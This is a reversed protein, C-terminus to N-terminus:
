SCSNVTINGTNSIDQNVRERVNYANEYRIRRDGFIWDAFVPQYDYTVEVFMVASGPIAAIMRDNSGMGDRMSADERGKGELGYAPSVDLEGWCRQWNIMQGSRADNKQNDQLSSLVIRGHNEIDLSGGAIRAGSFIETIDSEDMGTQVRAANDAVTTAIQSIKQYALALNVLETGGMILVILVPLAIAFEVLTAGRQNSHLRRLALTMM